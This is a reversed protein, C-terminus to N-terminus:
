APQGRFRGHRDLGLHDFPLCLPPRETRPRTSAPMGHATRVTFVEGRRTVLGAKQWAKLRRSARQRRWGWRRGFEAM